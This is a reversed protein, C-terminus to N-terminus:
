TLNWRSLHQAVAFPDINYDRVVINTGFNAEYCGRRSFQPLNVRGIDVLARRLAPTDMAAYKAAGARSLRSTM